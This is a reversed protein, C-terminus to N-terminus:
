KSFTRQSEIGETVAVTIQQLTDQLRPTVGTRKTDPEQTKQTVSVCSSQEYRTRRDTQTSPTSGRVRVSDESFHLSPLKRSLMYRLVSYVTAIANSYAPM